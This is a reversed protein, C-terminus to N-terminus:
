RGLTKFIFPYTVAVEVGGKPTPFKWTMLRRIICDDLRPDPLTSQKAEATKVAGAGGITFDVILKGEIDPTRIMASEYCYRVESLHRHIVEGVEDKTLGDEVTSNAIDMSVFGKGQGSVQAHEGKGYGVAKGNGGPVGEGGLSAVAVNKSDLGGIKPATAKLDKSQADLIRSAESDSRHGAVFDSQALLKTMGGKMLQSVASQLAKARFAQVVATEQVKKQAITQNPASEASASSAAHKMPALVIKAFQPPLLEDQSPKPWIFSLAILALLGIASNRLQKQFRPDERDIGFDITPLAATNKTQASKLIWGFRWTNNGFVLASNALEQASLKLETKPELEKKETPTILFIQSSEPLIHIADSKRTLNFIANTGIQARYENRAGGEVRHSELVWQGLTRYIGLFRESKGDSKDSPGSNQDFVPLTRSAPEIQLQLQRKSDTHLTLETNKKLQSFPIEHVRDSRTAGAKGGLYTIRVGTQTSEMMWQIPFGIKLPEASRWVLKRAIGSVSTTVVFDKALNTAESM